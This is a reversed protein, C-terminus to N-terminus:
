LLDESAFEAGVLALAMYGPGGAGRVVNKLAEAAKYVATRDPEPLRDVTDKVALYTLREPTM